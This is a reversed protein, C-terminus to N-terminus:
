QQGTRIRADNAFQLLEGLANGFWVAMSSILVVGLVVPVDRTRVASVMLAGIGQWGLVSEVIVSGGLLGGLSLGAVTLFPSLSARMAHKTIVTWESLGKARATRIFDESMVEQLGNLLQALLISILPVALVVSGAVLQFVYSAGASVINLSLALAILALVMRPTSATIFIFGEVVRDLWKNQARVSWVALFVSIGISLVLAILGMLLTNLFRPWILTGVPIRFNMSEGLDGRAANALWSLYREPLPRDLGYVTRLQEITRESIQPDDRLGSLADGGASALLAFTIASVILLMLLGQVLKRLVLKLM